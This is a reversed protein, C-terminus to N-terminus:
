RHELASCLSGIIPRFSGLEKWWPLDDWGVCIVFIVATKPYQGRLSRLASAREEQSLVNTQPRVERALGVVIVPVLLVALLLCCWSMWSNRPARLYLFLLWFFVTTNVVSVLLGPLKAGMQRMRMLGLGVLIVYATLMITDGTTM